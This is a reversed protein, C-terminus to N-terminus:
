IRFKEAGREDEDPKEGGDEGVAMSGGDRGFRGSGRGVAGRFGEMSEATEEIDELAEWDYLDFVDCEYLDECSLVADVLGGSM